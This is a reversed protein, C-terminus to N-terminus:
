SIPTEGNCKAGAPLAPSFTPRMAVPENQHAIASCYDKFDFQCNTKCVYATGDPGYATTGMQAEVSHGLAISALGLAGGLLALLLAYETATSGSQDRWM